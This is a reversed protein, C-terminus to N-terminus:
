PFKLTLSPQGIFTLTVTLAGTSVCSPAVSYGSIQSYWANNTLWTTTASDYTLVAYPFRGTSSSGPVGNSSSSAACPLTNGNAAYYAALGATAYGKLDTAVRRIVAQALEEETITALTDNFTTSTPAAVYRGTAPGNANNVSGPAPGTDLYDSANLNGGCVSSGSLSRSQGSMAAGPAFIVAVVRTSVTNGNADAVQLGGPTASNLATTGTRSSAPLSSRYLSAAGLGYWLCENEGDRIDALGLTRWPIRGLYSQCNSGSTTPTGANTADPCPLGGPLSLNSVAAGILAEKAQALAAATRQNKVQRWYAADFHNLYYGMLIAAMLVTAVLVTYGSQNKRPSQRM